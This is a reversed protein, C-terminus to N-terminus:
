IRPVLIVFCVLVYKAKYVVDEGDKEAYVSAAYSDEDSEASEKDVEVREVRVGYEVRGGGWKRAAELLVGNMRAQNLILHPLHSLGKRSDAEVKLRKLGGKEDEGWFTDELVHYAEDLITSSLGFSAYVEVTRCQVGDAQGRQLPGTSRELILHSINLRSLWLSALLGASGSGVILVDTEVTSPSRNTASPNSPLTQSEIM